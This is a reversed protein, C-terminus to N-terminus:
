VSIVGRCGPWKTCGWFENGTNPGKKATRKIMASQCVPCKPASPPVTPATASAIPPEVPTSPRHGDLTIWRDLEKGEVLRINRGQAFSKAEATFTGACVVFGGVAGEAVIAGLFERIVPVGVKLARWQKCQVLYKEGDKRLVLDVGGDPGNGGTESVSYGQNRFNEGVLAEFERWSINQLTRGSRTAQAVDRHLRKRKSRGIISVSAGIVCAAPILYQLFTAIGRFASGTLAESFHKPDTLVPLASTAYGHLAYWAIPALLLSLWWPLRSTIFILDEVANTKRRAM